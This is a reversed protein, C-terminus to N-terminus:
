ATHAGKGEVKLFRDVHKNMHVIEWKKMWPGQITTDFEEEELDQFIYGAAM